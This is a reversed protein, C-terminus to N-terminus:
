AGFTVTLALVEGATTGVYLTKGDPAVGLACVGPLPLRLLCRRHVDHAVLVGDMAVLSYPGLPTMFSDLRFWQLGTWDWPEEPIFAGQAIAEPNTPPGPPRWAQRWTCRDTPHGSDDASILVHPDGVRLAVLPAYVATDGLRELSTDHLTLGLVSHTSGRSLAIVHPPRHVLAVCSTATKGRAAVGDAGVRALTGDTCAVLCGGEVGVIANVGARGLKALPTPPGLLLPAPGAPRGSFAAFAAVGATGAEAWAAVLANDAGTWMSVSAKRQDALWDGRATLAAIWGETDLGPGVATTARGSGRAEVKGPPLTCNPAEIVGAVDAYAAWEPTGGLTVGELTLRGADLALLTALPSEVSGGKARLSAVGQVELGNGESASVTTERLDVNSRDAASVGAGTSGTIAVGRVSIVADRDARLGLRAGTITGGKVHLKGSDATLGTDYASADCRDLHLEGMEAHYARSGPGVCACRRAKARGAASAKVGTPCGHFTCHEVELNVHEARPYASTSAGICCNEFSCKAVVARGTGRADIGAHVNSEHAGWKAAPEVVYGHAAGVLRCERILLEGGPEVVVLSGWSATGDPRATRRIELNDITVKARVRILADRIHGEICAGPTGRLTTPEELVLADALTRTGEITTEM